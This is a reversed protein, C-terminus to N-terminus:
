QAPESVSELKPAKWAWHSSGLYNVAFGALIGIIASLDSVGILHFASHIQHSTLEAYVLSFVAENVAFSGLSVINYKLFRAFKRGSSKSPSQPIAKRFTFRDNWTFNNVISIEIAIGNALNPNIWTQLITLVLLQVVAGSAGVVLFKILTSNQRVAQRPSSIMELPSMRSVSFGGDRANEVSPKQISSALYRAYRQSIVMCGSSSSTAIDGKKSLLRKLDRQSISSANAGSIVLFRESDPSLEVAKKIGDISGSDSQIEFYFLRDNSITNAVQKVNPDDPLIITLKRTLTQIREVLSKMTTPAVSDRLFIATLDLTSVPKISRL